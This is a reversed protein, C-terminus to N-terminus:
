FPLVEERCSGSHFQLISCALELIIFVGYSRGCGIRLNLISVSGRPLQWQSTALRQL